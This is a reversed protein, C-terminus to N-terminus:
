SDLSPSRRTALYLLPGFSGAVLSILLWPWPNRGQRRADRWIFIMCILVAIVLDALVQRTGWNAWQQTFVGVYGVEWVAAATLASFPLLIAWAIWRTM